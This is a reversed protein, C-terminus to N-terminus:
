LLESWFPVEKPEAQDGTTILGFERRLYDPLDSGYVVVDTQVVSLVPLGRQALAPAYRHGYVPILRPADALAAQAVEVADATRSPRPGWPAHWFGNERVDFLVGSVPEALRERLGASGVHRWDPWRGGLPLGAALLVRHDPNFTFGFTQEVRRLEVEAMGEDVPIPLDDWLRAAQALTLTM